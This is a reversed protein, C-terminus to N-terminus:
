AIVKVAPVRMEEGKCVALTETNERKNSQYAM